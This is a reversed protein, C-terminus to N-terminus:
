IAAPSAAKGAGHSGLQAVSITSGHAAAARHWLEADDDRASLYIFQRGEIRAVELIATAVAAFRQPDSTTLAEDLFFPLTLRVASTLGAPSGTEAGGAAAEAELAFALRSAILLQAHTGTSLVGLEHLRGTRDAAALRGTSGEGREFRLVFDGRTFREFLTAARELAPPRAESEHEAEVARLLFHAAALRLAEERHASLEEVAEELRASTLSISTDSATLEIERETQNVERTLVDVRAQADLCAAAAEELAGRDGAEVLSMLDADGALRLTLTAVRADVARRRQSVDRWGPLVALRTRLVAGPEASVESGAVEDEVLFSLGAGALLQRRERSLRAAEARSRDRDTQLSALRLRDADRKDVARALRRVTARLEDPRLEATGGSPPAPWAGVGVADVTAGTAVTALFSRLATRAEKVRRDLHSGEVEVGTLATRLRDLDRVAHLWSALSVDQGVTFGYHTRMTDIENQVEASRLRVAALDADIGREAEALRRREAALRGREALEADIATVLDAVEAHEWVVPAGLGHQVRARSTEAEVQQRVASTQPPVALATLVIWVSTAAALALLVTASAELAGASVVALILALAVGWAWAPRRPEVPPAALWRLLNARLRALQDDSGAVLVHEEGPETDTERPDPEPGGAVAQVRSRQRLLSAEETRASQRQELLEEVRHITTDSVVAPPETGDGEHGVRRGVERLQVLLAQRESAKQALKAHDEVLRDARELHLTVEAAGLDERIGTAALARRLEDIELERETLTVAEARAAAEFNALSEGEDGRLADMDPPYATLEADLEALESRAALLHLADDVMGARRAGERAAAIEGGLTPLRAERAYLAARRQELGTREKSASRVASALKKGAESQAGIAGRVAALDIGGTLQTVISDAIVADVTRAGDSGPASSAAARGPGRRIPRHTRDVTVLDEIRLTYAGVLHPEPVVPAATHRGDHEWAVDTGLRRAVLSSGTPTAFRAEVGMVGEHERPYLLALLARLLSSKGSANPGVIVNVGPTLAEVRLPEDIGHLRDINLSTLRV